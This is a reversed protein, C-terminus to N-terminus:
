TLRRPLEAPKDPPAAPHDVIRMAVATVRGIIQAETPHAFQRIACGSLPHPLLMLRNGRVECWSCAYGGRLEVFFIPRDFETRWASACATKEQEDIQVFSGPRLLPSLTHDELGIYGYLGHRIDFHRILAIPVEGWTEVMRSLLSTRERRFKRSFRVPFSVARDEDYVQLTALHTKQLPTSLEYKNIKDLDVGYLLLLDTFKTRYIVSLSFLKYISPTSPTNEIQTIWANSICFEANGQLGALTRSYEEVERTSIGLRCRLEKLQEGARM